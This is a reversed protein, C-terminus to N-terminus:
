RGKMRDKDASVAGSNTGAIKNRRADRRIKRPKRPRKGEPWRIVGKSNKRM